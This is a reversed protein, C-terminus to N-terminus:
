GSRKKTHGEAKKADLREAEAIALIEELATIALTMEKRFVPVAKKANDLVPKARDLDIESGYRRRGVHRFGRLDDLLARLAESILPDRTETAAAAIRILRAHYAPDQEIPPDTRKLVAELITEMGTYVSNVTSGALKGYEWDEATPNKAKWREFAELEKELKDMEADFDRKHM